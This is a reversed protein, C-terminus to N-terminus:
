VYCSPIANPDHRCARGGADHEKLNPTSLKVPRPLSQRSPQVPHTRPVNNTRQEKNKTRQQLNTPLSQGTECQRGSKASARIANAYTGRRSAADSALGPCASQRRCGNIANGQTPSVGISVDGQFPMLSRVPQTSRPAPTSTTQPTPPSRDSAGEPSEPPYRYRNGPRRQARGRAPRKAGKPRVPVPCGDPSNPVCRRRRVTPSRKMRPTRGGGRLPM